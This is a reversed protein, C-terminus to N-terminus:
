QTKRLPGRIAHFVFFCVAIEEVLAFDLNRDKDRKVTSTVQNRWNSSPKSTEKAVGVVRKDSPVLAILIARSGIFYSSVLCIPKSQLICKHAPDPYKEKTHAKQTLRIEKRVGLSSCM